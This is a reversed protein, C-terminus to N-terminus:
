KIVSMKKTIQSAETTLTYFYVGAELQNVDFNVSHKGANQKGNKISLVLKGTIDKVEIIVDSSQTLEYNITTIGTAPNPMNQSMSVKNGAVEEVGVQTNASVKYTFLHNEFGYAATFAYRPIYNGNWNPDLNYRVDTPVISSVNWDCAPSSTVPCYTYTPFTSAGNEEYSAFVFSNVQKGITDALTVPMGPKFTVGTALLKGAGVSLANTSFLKEGYFAVSTDAWDLPLKMTVAGTGTPRNTTYSYNHAKFYVTDSNYDAAMGPFYYTPLNAATSNTYLTVILTDVVTSGSVREYVYTVGMSDLTYPITKDLNLSYAQKIAVSTIDLVQGLSHVWPSGWTSGGQGNGFEAKVTSDNMLFNSNLVSTGGLNTNVAEGYSVWMGVAREANNQKQFHYNKNPNLQAQKLLKKGPAQGTVTNQAMTIGCTVLALVALTYNKKM